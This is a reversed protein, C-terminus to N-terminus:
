MTRGSVGLWSWSCDSGVGDHSGFGSPRPQDGRIISCSESGGNMSPRRRAGAGSSARAPRGPHVQGCLSAFRWACRETARRDHPGEPRRVVPTASSALVRPKAVGAKAPHAKTSSTGPYSATGPSDVTAAARPLSQASFLSGRLATLSRELVSTRFLASYNLALSFPPTMRYDCHWEARDLPV